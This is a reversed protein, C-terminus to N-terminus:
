SPPKGVSGSKVVERGMSISGFVCYAMLNGCDPLFSKWSYNVPRQSLNKGSWLMSPILNLFLESPGWFYFWLELGSHGGTTWFTQGGMAQCYGELYLLCAWKGSNGGDMQPEIEGTTQDHNNGIVRWGSFGLQYQSPSYSCLARPSFHKISTLCKFKSLNKEKNWKSTENSTEGIKM